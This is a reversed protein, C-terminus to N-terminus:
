DIRRIEGRGEGVEMGFWWWRRDSRCLAEGVALGARLELIVLVQRQDEDAAHRAAAGRQQAHQEVCMRVDPLVRLDENVM